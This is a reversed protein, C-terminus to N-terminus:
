QIIANFLEAHTMNSTDVYTANEPKLLHKGVVKDGKVSVRLSIKTKSDAELTVSTVSVFPDRIIYVGTIVQRACMANFKKVFAAMWTHFQVTDGSAKLENLAAVLEAHITDIEGRCTSGLVLAALIDVGNMHKIYCEDQNEIVRTTKFEVLRRISNRTFLIDGQVNDIYEVTDVDTRGMLITEIEVHEIFTTQSNILIDAVNKTLFLNDIDMLAQDLIRHMKSVDEPLSANYIYRGLEVLTAGTFNVHKVSLNCVADYATQDNPPILLVRKITRGDQSMDMAVFVAGMVLVDAIEYKTKHLNSGFDGPRRVASALQLALGRDSHEDHIPLRAQVLLDFVRFQRVKIWEFLKTGMLDCFLEENMKEKHHTTNVGRPNTKKANASITQRRCSPEQIVRNITGRLSVVADQFRVPKSAYTPCATCAHSSGFRFKLDCLNTCPQAEQAACVASAITEADTCRVHSEDLNRLVPHLLVAYFDPHPTYLLLNVMREVNWPHRPRKVKPEQTEDRPAHKRTLKVTEKTQSNFEELKPKIILM